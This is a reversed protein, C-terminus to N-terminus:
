LPPDQVALRLATHKLRHFLPREGRHVKCLPCNTLIDSIDTLSTTIKLDAKEFHATITVVLVQGDEKLESPECEKYAGLSGNETYGLLTECAERTWGVSNNVYYELETQNMELLSSVLEDVSKKVDDPNYKYDTKAFVCTTFMLSTICFLVLFRKFNKM